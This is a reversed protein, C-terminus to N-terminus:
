LKNHKFYNELQKKLFRLGSGSKLFGERGLADRRVLYSEYYILRLPLRGKTSAVKGKRHRSVRVELNESFGVYLGNDKLSHLVYVYYVIFVYHPSAVHIKGRLIRAASPDRPM